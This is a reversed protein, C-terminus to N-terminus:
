LKRSYTNIVTERQWFVLFLNIHVQLLIGWTVRLKESSWIPVSDIKEVMVIDYKTNHSGCSLVLHSKTVPEVFNLYKIKTSNQWICTPVRRLATNKAERFIFLYFDLKRVSWDLVKCIWLSCVNLTNGGNANTKKEYTAKRNCIFVETVKERQFNHLKLVTFGTSLFWSGKM